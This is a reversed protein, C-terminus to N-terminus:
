ARLVACYWVADPCEGTVFEFDDWRYPVRTPAVMASLRGLLRWRIAQWLYRLAPVGYAWNVLRFARMKSRLSKRVAWRTGDQLQRIKGRVDEEWAKLKGVDKFRQGYIEVSGFHRRMMGAFEDHDLEKIHEKNIPSPEHGLSFVMRNPTSVFAVGGPALHRRLNALFGEMDPVHELVECSIIRDWCGVRLDLAPDCADAIAFPLGPFSRQALAVAAESMDFGLIDRAGASDRLWQCNFGSGCGWDLVRCGDAGVVKQFFHLRAFQQQVM